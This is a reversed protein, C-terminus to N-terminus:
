VEGEVGGRLIGRFSESVRGASRRSRRWFLSSEGGGWNVMDELGELLFGLIAGSGGEESRAGEGGRRYM